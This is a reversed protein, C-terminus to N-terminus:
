VVGRMKTMKAPLKPWVLSVLKCAAGKHGKCVGRLATVPAGEQGAGWKGLGGGARAFSVREETPLGVETTTGWVRM